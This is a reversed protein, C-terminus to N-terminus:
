PKAIRFILFYQNPLFDYEKALVYGAARLEAKV